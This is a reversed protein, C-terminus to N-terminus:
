PRFGSAINGLGIIPDSGLGFLIDSFRHREGLFALWSTPDWGWFVARNNMGFLYRSVVFVLVVNIIWLSTEPAVDDLGWSYRLSQCENQTTVGRNRSPRHCMAVGWAEGRCHRQLLWNTANASSASM